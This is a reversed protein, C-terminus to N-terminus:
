QDVIRYRMIPRTESRRAVEAFGADRFSSAIGTFIFVPPTDASKPEVPYGEVIRAGHEAAYEVAARLLRSTVGKRRHEKAVFFCTVSWVPLEDVRKLIRSRELAGYEERPALACWGVPQGDIYALLGPPTGTNVVSRLAERNGEGKQRDFESRPLRWWMCWCGGTAGRPGFLRELDDWRESTAPHIEISGPDHTSM